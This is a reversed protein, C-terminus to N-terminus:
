GFYEKSRSRKSWLIKDLKRPTWEETHFQTNLQRAKEKMIKNLILGDQITLNEPRMQLIRQHEPLDQISSLAAVMFQDVTGFHRPLLIALLGSAGSTGLGRIQTAIELGRVTDNVDFSVLRTQISTLEDMRNETQYRMLQARTTALRNPATYKWFFYEDHLFHFFEKASYAAIVDMNIQELYKEVTIHDPKILEWYHAEADKWQRETGRWWLETMSIGFIHPSVTAVQMGGSNM